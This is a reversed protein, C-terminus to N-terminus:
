CADDNVGKKSVSFLPSFIIRNVSKCHVYSMSTWGFWFIGVSVLVSGAIVSPLRFEPESKGEIGTAIENKAILNERINIWIKGTLAASTMGVTMGTFTLGTQWLNFGHNNEFVLPFAGFFLYLIGM